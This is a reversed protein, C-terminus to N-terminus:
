DKPHLYWDQNETGKSEVWKGYGPYSQDIPVMEKPRFPVGNVNPLHIAFPYKDDSVYYMKTSADSRDNGTGLWKLNALGSPHYGSLHVEKGREGDGLGPIIFPNYPPEIAAPSVPDVFDLRVSFTKESAAHINDFLVLTANDQGNELGKTKSVSSMEPTIVASKVKYAPVDLQYGFGSKIQGGPIAVVFQDESSIVGKSTLYITSHYKVMVDNMDYDGKYPWLDEFALTGQRSYSETVPENDGEPIQVGGGGMANSPSVQLAFVADRFNETKGGKQDEFSVFALGTKYEFLTVCRQRLNEPLAPYVNFAPDSYHQQLGVVLNGDKYGHAYLFYEITTNAPFEDEFATGNWYKLQIQDNRELVGAPKEVPNVNDSFNPFAIIPTIKSVDAPKSGTPYHYYGIVNRFSAYEAIFAMKVEANKTLKLSVVGNDFLEPHNEQVRGNGNNLMNNVRTLLEDPITAKEKLLYSPLGENEGSTWEGLVLCGKPYTNAAKTAIAKTAVSASRLGSGSLDLAIEKNTVSRKVCQPLGLANTYVYVEKVSTPLKCTGTYKGDKDTFAAFYPEIKDNFVETEGTTDFPYTTYLRFPIEGGKFNYNLNITCEGTTAYDFVESPDVPPTDPSEGEYVDQVCGGLLLLVGVCKIARVGKNFNMKGIGM